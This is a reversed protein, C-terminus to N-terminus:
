MNAMPIQSNDTECWNFQHQQIFLIAPELESCNAYRLLVRGHIDINDSLYLISGNGIIQQQIYLHSNNLDYVYGHWHSLIQELAAKTRYIENTGRAM